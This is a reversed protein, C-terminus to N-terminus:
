PSSCPRCPAGRDRGRELEIKDSLENNIRLRASPRHYLMKIWGIFSPGFGFKGLVRWIYGWEVSDFAKTVDLSLVVRSGVNETPTQINLFTRRINMSTSRNAIFGAQDPHILKSILRNLRTALVKALIKADSCLLSIPRYAAVDLPDKGEKQVLVITAELMSIPLRGERPVGGLAKLLEPLLIEGYYTYAETPLGDPGPSKQNAMSTVAQQLEVLTIPSELEEREEQTITPIELNGLFDEMIGEVGVKQASYLNKYYDRFIQLIKTTDSLIEGGPSRIASISSPPSNSKVLQALMKGVSEGEAFSSQRLFLQRTEVKRMITIKYDQQKDLWIKERESSPDTVYNNEAEIVERRIREEWIKAEKNFKAVQQIPVGRLYAKLTDWLIGATATGENCVIFERLQPLVRDTKKILEFWHPNIKWERQAKKGGLKLTLVIPSHDSIGRPMYVVKETIQLARDNGLAMDIRSYTSYSTSYCSYQQAGPNRVRWIDMLGVEDLLQSLRGRGTPEANIRIPFRDLKKDLIENFDGVVIVPVEEKDLLFENLRIMVDIKFPPPIYINALVYKRNGISCYLFIYRGNEDISAQSCSFAVGSKVM